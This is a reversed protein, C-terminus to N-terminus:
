QDEQKSSTNLVNQLTSILEQKTKFGRVHEALANDKVADRIWNSFDNKTDNVHHYFVSDSMTKITQILETISRIPKGDNTWFHHDPDVMTGKNIAGGNLKDESEILPAMKEYRNLFEKLELSKEKIEREKEVLQNQKDEIESQLTKWELEMNQLPKIKKLIDQELLTFKDKKKKKEWNTKINSLYDESSVDEINGKKKIFKSALMSFFSNEDPKETNGPLSAVGPAEKASVDEKAPAKAGDITVGEKIEPLSPIEEDKKAPEKVKPDASEEVKPVTEGSDTKVDGEPKQDSTNEDEPLSPLEDPVSDDKGKKGLNLLAM